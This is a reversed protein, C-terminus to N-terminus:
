ATFDCLGKRQYNEVARYCLIRGKTQFGKSDKTGRARNELHFRHSRAVLLIGNRDKLKQELECIERRLLSRESSFQHELRSEFANRRNDLEQRLNHMEERSDGLKREYEYVKSESRSAFEQSERVKNELNIKLQRITDNQDELM